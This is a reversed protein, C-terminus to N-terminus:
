ENPIQKNLLLKFISGCGGCGQEILYKRSHLTPHTIYFFM